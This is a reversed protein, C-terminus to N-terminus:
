LKNNLETSYLWLSKISKRGTQEQFDDVLTLKKKYKGVFELSQEKLHETHITTNM